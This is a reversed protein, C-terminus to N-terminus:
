GRVSFDAEDDVTPIQIMETKEIRIFRDSHLEQFLREIMVSNGQVEMEVNGNYMNRVWGTVGLSSAIYCARYRFGVGQVRGSFWYHKRILNERMESGKGDQVDHKKWVGRGKEYEEAIEEGTESDQLFTRYKKRKFDFISM